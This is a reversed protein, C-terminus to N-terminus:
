DLLQGVYLVSHLQPARRGEVLFDIRDTLLVEALTDLLLILHLRHETVHEAASTIWECGHTACSLSWKSYLNDRPIHRASNIESDVM